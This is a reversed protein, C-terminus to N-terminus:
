STFSVLFSKLDLDEESVTNYLPCDYFTDAIEVM